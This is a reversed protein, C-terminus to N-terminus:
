FSGSQKYQYTRKLAPMDCAVTNDAKVRKALEMSAYHAEDRYQGSKPNGYTEGVEAAATADNRIFILEDVSKTKMANMTTTHWNPNSM